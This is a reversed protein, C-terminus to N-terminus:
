RPFELFVWLESFVELTRGRGGLLENIISKLNAQESVLYQFNGFNLLHNRLHIWPQFVHTHIRQKWNWVEWKTKLRSLIAEM